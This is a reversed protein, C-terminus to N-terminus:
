LLKVSIDGITGEVLIACFTRSQLFPGGSSFILFIKLCCRRWFWQDSTLIIECFHEEYHRRGFSCLFPEVGSFLPAVLAKAVPWLM